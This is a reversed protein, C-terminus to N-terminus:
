AAAAAQPKVSAMGGTSSQMTSRMSSRMSAPDVRVVGSTFYKERLESGKMSGSDQVFAAIRNALAGCHPWVRSMQKSFFLIDADDHVTSVDFAYLRPIMDYNPNKDDENPILQCYIDKMAWAKPVKNMVCQANPM